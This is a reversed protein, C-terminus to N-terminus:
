ESMELSLQFGHNLYFPSHNPDMMGSHVLPNTQEKNKDKDQPKGSQPGTADGAFTAAM